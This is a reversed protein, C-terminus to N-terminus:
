DLMEDRRAVNLITRHLIQLDFILSHSHLYAMEFEVKDSIPLEDCGNVQTCIASGPTCVHMAALKAREFLDYQNFLANRPGVFGMHVSFFPSSNIGNM